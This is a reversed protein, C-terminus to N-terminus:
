LFSNKEDQSFKANKRKLKRSMKAFRRDVSYKENLGLEQVSDPSEKLLKDM